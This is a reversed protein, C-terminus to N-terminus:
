EGPGPVPSLSGSPPDNAVPRVQASGPATAAPALGPAPPAAAAEAAKRAAITARLARQKEEDLPFNWMTLGTALLFVMPLLVYIATMLAISEPTNVADARPSFGVLDLLPFTIGPALAFGLKNTMLLLSYYVGTHERGSVATEQDAVDAVISRLLFAAAGYSLGYLFLAIAVVWAMGQPIFWVFPLTAAGYFMAAALTRHKSFRYSLQIWAPIGVLGAVFYTLLLWGWSDTLGFTYSILYIFLTGTIGPALGQCLDAFLLRRFAASGTFIRWAVRWDDKHASVPPARDPVAFWAAAVTLPTLILVFAGMASMRELDELPRGIIAGIIEPLALVLLMGGILAFERAGQVRSRENYDPTLEAGWSMHAISIVSYALYTVMLWLALYTASADSPPAFLMYTGLLLVPVSGAMWPRRRGLATKSSDMISGIMPDFFLDVLRVLTFILGVTTQSITFDKAYIPAVVVALPLGLASMPVAPGGYALITRFPLSFRPM